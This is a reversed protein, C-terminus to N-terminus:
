QIAALAYRCLTADATYTKTPTGSNASLSPCQVDGSLVMWMRMTSNSSDYSAYAGVYTTGGCPIARMSVAPVKNGMYPKLATNVTQSSASGMGFCAAAGNQSLCWNNPGAYGEGLCGTQQPYGGNEVAYVNFAKVYDKMAVITQTNSGQQQVNGYAMISIAALIAIVVIVILLEVITFGNSPRSASAIM